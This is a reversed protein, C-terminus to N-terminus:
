RAGAGGYYGMRFIEIQFDVPPDTSVKFEITEGAMVSQRSCYGEISPSRLGGAKDLRLRTLQWDRTGPQANEAAILNVPTNPEAASSSAAVAPVALSAALATKLVDRRSASSPEDTM